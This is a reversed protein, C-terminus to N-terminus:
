SEGTSTVRFLMGDKVMVSDGPSLVGSSQEANGRSYKVLYTNQNNGGPYVLNVIETYSYKRKEVVHDDTNVTITVDKKDKDDAM